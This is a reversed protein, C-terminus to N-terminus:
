HNKSIFNRWSSIAEEISYNAEWWLLQKAKSPDAISTAIDGDRRDVIDYDVTKSSVSQVFNIMELVSTGNWTWINIYELKHNSISRYAYLHAQALDMIHIYDRVWTGDVTDYDDGFVNVKDLEWIAVKFVYPLLNNPKDKPNEWILWSPHAWVPNFYRLSICHWDRYNSLDKMMYEIVLKTTGYPNTTWLVSDEDFPPNWKTADYVTASSSFVINKVGYDDMVEFLNLSWTINNDYYIFPKSCSEGVAKMAAFHIVGDIKNDEFIQSLWVKDRIDIDYYPITKWSLKQLKDLVSIDSNYLNDVIIVDYWSELLVIATHSWIYWLWWTILIKKSIM